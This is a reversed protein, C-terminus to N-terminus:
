QRLRLLKIEVERLIDGAETKTIDKTQVYSQLNARACSSQFTSLVLPENRFLFLWAGAFPYTLAVVIFSFIRTPLSLKSFTRNKPLSEEVIDFVIQTERHGVWICPILISLLIIGIIAGTM